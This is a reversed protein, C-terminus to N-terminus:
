LTSLPADAARAARTTPRRHVRGPLSIAKARRGGGRATEHATAQEVHMPPLAPRRPDPGPLFKAPPRTSGPNGFAVGGAARYTLPRSPRARSWEPPQMSRSKVVSTVPP